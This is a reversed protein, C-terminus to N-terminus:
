RVRQRHWFERILFSRFTYSGEGELLYGDRLLVALLRALQEEVEASNASPRTEILANMIQDRRRGNSHQCLHTLISKAALADSKEFQENLRQRWTDLQALEESKLLYSFADEVVQTGVTTSNSNILAHFVVQLHHPLPWGIREIILRRQEPNLPLHNDTGLRTLFVDAEEPSLAELSALTLDNITKRLNHNDVFSDLGISGLFVWRIKKRYNQRLERMWHLLLDVREAGHEQRKIALLLEPLEDIAILVAQDESEIKHFVSELARALTDFDANGASGMDMKIGAAGFAMNGMARRFKRFSNAIRTLMKPHLGSEKLGDVLKEAFLLENKCGEVNIFTAIYGADRQLECLRLVLSTKGVRRPATLLINANNQLERQLRSLDDPRDFFDGHEVPPGTVNKM